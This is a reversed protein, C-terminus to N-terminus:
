ASILRRNTRKAGRMIRNVHMTEVPVFCTPLSPETIPRCSRAWAVCGSPQQTRAVADFDDARGRHAPSRDHPVYGLNPPARTPPQNNAYDGVQIARVM